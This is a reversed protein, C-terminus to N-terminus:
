LVTAVNELIPERCLENVSFHRMPRKGIESLPGQITAKNPLKDKFKRKTRTEIGM